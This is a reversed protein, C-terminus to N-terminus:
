RILLAILIGTAFCTLLFVIAWGFGKLWDKQERTM